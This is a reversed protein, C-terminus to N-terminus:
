ATTPTPLPATAVPLGILNSNTRQGQLTGLSFRRRRNFELRALFGVLILWMSLNKTQTLVREVTCHVYTLALAVLLGAALYGTSTRWFATLSRAAWWLTLVLFITFSAFGAYGTEALLLWYLSETLPNALYNEEILRFGRSQDWDMLIAAYKEVPLSNAMGFNNWGVGLAHDHLMAKSQANLIARLDHEEERSSAEHMRTMFSDLAVLSVVLAGVGGAAAIGALKFSFGRGAALLVVMVAGIAFAVLAARSVSLLILLGAAAFGTLYFTTDRKSAQPSLALSLVPLACLYAWMAMPNQHEFWGHVQWRGDLFRMKLAVMVQVVLGLALGHALWRIDEEDQLAHFAGIFVLIAKTFKFAAMLVYLKNDAPLFSLCSLGCWALYLWAGPPLWAFDRGRRAASSAIIAVALVEIISFEFGKTHGRYFEVSQLMLTLKGPFWSPMFVLLVLAARELTRSRSLLVWGVAPAVLLYAPIIVAAKILDNM